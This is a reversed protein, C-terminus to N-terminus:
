IEINEISRLSRGIYTNLVPQIEDLITETTRISCNTGKEGKLVIEMNRREITKIKEELAPMEFKDGTGFSKAGTFFNVTIEPHDSLIYKKM